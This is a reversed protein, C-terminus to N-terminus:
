SKIEKAQNLDKDVDNINTDIKDAVVTDKRQKKELFNPDLTTQDSQINQERLFETFSKM